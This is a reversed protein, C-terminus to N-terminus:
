HLRKLFVAIRNQPLKLGFVSFSFCNSSIIAKKLLYLFGMTMVVETTTNCNINPHSALNQMMLM